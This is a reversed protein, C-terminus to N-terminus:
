IVARGEDIVCDRRALVEDIRHAGRLFQEADTDIFGAIELVDDRVRELPAGIIPEHHALRNRFRRVEDLRRHLQKRRVTRLGPFARVMRPQWLTTEYGFRPDRPIGADTLGVWLGFSTAAVVDDASPEDVGRRQLTSIAGDVARRERQMLHVAPDNWWDDARGARLADHVANRLLVELWAIPGWFATTLETNWAYLRLARHVHGDQLAMFRALRPASIRDPLARFRAPDIM